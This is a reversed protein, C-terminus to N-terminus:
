LLVAAPTSTRGNNQTARAESLQELSDLESAAGASLGRVAVLIKDFHHLHVYAPSIRYGHCRPM